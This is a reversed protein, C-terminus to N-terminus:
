FTFMKILFLLIDRKGKTVGLAKLLEIREELNDRGNRLQVYREYCYQWYLLDGSLMAGVYAM